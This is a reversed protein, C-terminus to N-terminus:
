GSFIEDLIPLSLLWDACASVWSGLTNLIVSLATGLNGNFYQWLAVIVVAGIFYKFGTRLM